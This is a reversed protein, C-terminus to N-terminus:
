RVPDILLFLWHRYLASNRTCILRCCMASPENTATLGAQQSAEKRRYGKQMPLTLPHVLPPSSPCMAGGGLIGVSCVRRWSHALSSSCCRPALLACSLALLCVAGGGGLIWVSCVCRSLPHAPVAISPTRPFPQHRRWWPDRGLLHPASFARSLALTPIPGGSLDRGLAFAFVAGPTCPSPSRAGPV